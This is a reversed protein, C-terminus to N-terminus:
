KSRSDNFSLKSLAVLYRATQQSTNRFAILRDLKMALCDGTALQWQRNGVTMEMVGEM